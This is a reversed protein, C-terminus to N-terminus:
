QMSLTSAGRPKSSFLNVLAADTLALWDIGGHDYFRKDEARLLIRIFAPSVDALHVWPLRRGRQDMRLEQIAEGHRDLLVAETSLFDHEVKDYAPLAFCPTSLLLLALRAFLRSGRSTFRSARGGRSELTMATVRFVSM